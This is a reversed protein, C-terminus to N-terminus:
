RQTARVHRRPRGHLLTQSVSGLLLGAFRGPGAPRRGRAPRGRRAGDLEQAPRDRVVRREIALDPHKDQWGALREALVVAAEEAAVADWDILRALRPDAADQWAHVAVLTTPRRLAADVAFELAAESLEPAM